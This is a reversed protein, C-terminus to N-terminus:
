LRALRDKLVYDTAGKKLSEVAREEGITGSVFLFPVDPHKLRAFELASLGSYGPLTHDSVILDPAFDALAQEFTKDSDVRQAVFELGAKSLQRAILAADEASDELFLFRLPKGM